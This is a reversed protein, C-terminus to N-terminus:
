DSKAQAAFYKRALERNGDNMWVLSLDDMTAGAHRGFEKLLTEEISAYPAPKADISGFMNFNSSRLNRVFVSKGDLIAGGWALDKAGSVNTYSVKLPLMGEALRSLKAGLRDIRDKPHKYRSVIRAVAAPRDLAGLVDLGDGSLCLLKFGDSGSKDEFAFFGLPVMVEAEGVSPSRDALMVALVDHDVDPANLAELAKGADHVSAAALAELEDYPTWAPLKREEWEQRLRADSSVTEERVASYPTRTGSRSEPEFAPNFLYVRRVSGTESVGKRGIRLQVRSVFAPPLLREFDALETAKPERYLWFTGRGDVRAEIPVIGPIDARARDVLDSRAGSFAFAVDLLTNHDKRGWGEGGVLMGGNQARWLAVARGLAELSVEPALAAHDLDSQLAEVAAKQAEEEEGLFRRLEKFLHFYQAYNRREKRSNLYYDLDAVSVRDICICATRDRRLAAGVDVRAEFKRQKGLDTRMAGQAECATVLQDGKRGVLAIGFVSTPRYLRENGGDRNIRSSYLAPASAPNVMREWVVAIRSGSQLGRNHQRVWEEFSPRHVGLTGEGDHVYVMRQSQFEADYWNDFRARDCFPGFLGLRDNLGWLMLLMRKYFVTNRDFATRAKSYDLHEPRVERGFVKFIDDIEKATPFLRDASDTTIESNVLHVNGGDRVLLYVKHNMQNMMAEVIAMSPEDFYIRDERRVRVLVAGRKIPIMRDLLGADASLIEGLDGLSKFDFGGTLSEVALEEDFYLRNQYLTLPESPDASAGTCVTEVTVGEGTYLSLTQLGEAIDRAFQIHDGVLALAAHAKEQYYNALLTTQSTIDKAGDQLFKMREEAQVTMAKARGALDEKRDVAHVLDTTTPRKQVPSPLLGASQPPPAALRAQVDAIRAQVVAIEEERVKEGDDDAVFFTFFEDTMFALNARDADEPHAAMEVSHLADDLFHLRVALLTVGERVARRVAYTVEEKGSTHDGGSWRSVDRLTTEERQPIACVSRFYRGPIAALDREPMRNGAAGGGTRKFSTIENAM